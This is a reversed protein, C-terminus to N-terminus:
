GSVAISHTKTDAGPSAGTTHSYSCRLWWRQCVDMRFGAVEQWRLGSHNLLVFYELILSLSIFQLMPARSHCDQLIYESIVIEQETPNHLWLATGLNTMYCVAIPTWHNLVLSILLPESIMFRDEQRVANFYSFTQISGFQTVQRYIM